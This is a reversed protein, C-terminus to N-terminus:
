LLIEYFYQFHKNLKEYSRVLIGLFFQNLKNTLLLLYVGIYIFHIIIRDFNFDVSHEARGTLIEGLNSRNALWFSPCSWQVYMIGVEDDTIKKFCISLHRCVLGKNKFYLDQSIRIIV